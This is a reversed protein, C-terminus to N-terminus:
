LSHKCYFISNCYKIVTNSKYECNGYFQCLKKEGENDSVSQSESLAQKLIKIENAQSDIIQNLLRIQYNKGKNM